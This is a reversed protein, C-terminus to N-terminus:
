EHRLATMPSIRSARWAPTYGAALAAAALIAVSLSIALPDNPKAGFLFAAIFHTTEWAAALGIVLGVAALALVERLVMWIIGRQEAGLAMRIGIESTRRAVGYAMTGYLGVCAILLALIAFGTCLAAFTREQSITQDIQRAQTNIGTLPISNSTQGVIQRAAGALALPDGATRLEFWVGGLGDLDQTYPLYAVPPTDEKLSNYHATKSVGIIEIDAPRKSDGIGFTRGIPNQQPFFRAAFQENVVAVHASAMDREEIGRGLLVPIQLTALFSPDVHLMSTSQRRGAPPPAGPITVTDDNVYHSVLPFNSLGASRVGPIARFSDRLSAYLRALADGKYGAQRANLSFILINERNFGIDVSHLNSVTRVFLGAGIVLLLSTAIQAVVLLQNAGLRFGFRWLRGRPESARAEKLAPTLDVRTAQLAPALGFVIGTVLALALTFGLVRWSLNAHLTFQDRGNALLWTISQIGWYAVALGLLGGLFSLMVSETLLQRVIRWRGAGLSLRVAMERRRAAARALLLNAINACAIILILGVMAMLIYLPESYQRRLSDLGSAAEQLRLEPLVAKEKASAATSDAFLHFQTALAAQAQAITVGPRLRGMMEVWYFHPDFFKRREEDAPRQALLPAAHLPIAVPPETAADVGFFGPASVGVITFPVNNILMSQGIADPNAAFRRQWYKHTIVAVPAAGARDDADLILRGAAPPVGLDRYFGGSVFLGQAVEAQGHAIINVQWAGGYAFLTSLKDQNARLFEFAAFPYNPSTLIGTKRDRYRSGNQGHIVAPNGKAHWNLVVLEEPHQVPLARLLIADMFSYIATNAGIGLALSLVAMATFLRNAAMMRLAYRIDQALQEAFNWTWMARSEEKLLTVNGFQRSAAANAAIGSGRAEAQLSLHHRMEEDLDREFQDRHLLFRLRRM